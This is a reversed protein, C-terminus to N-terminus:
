AGILERRISDAARDARRHILGRARTAKDVQRATFLCPSRDSLAALDLASLCTAVLRRIGDGTLASVRVFHGAAPTEPPLKVNAVLDTKNFVVIRVTSEDSPPRDADVVDPEPSATSDVVLLSLDARQAVAQGAQIARQELREAQTHRGATDLLQIPVGDFEVQEGVWDRTTGAFDSVLAASRGVLRNFLTSKGSNPPGVLAICAGGVLFRAASYGSVMAQLDAAARDPETTCTTAVAELAAVLNTRQWALFRVARETKAAALADLSEREIMTRAQWTQGSAVGTAILRAGAQRFVELVREVVRIGGHTTLDFASFAAADITRHTDTRTILVDDVTEGDSGEIRGYLLPGTEEIRHKCGPAPRFVRDVISKATPGIVRIVAIAAAGPPTLLYCRDGVAESM